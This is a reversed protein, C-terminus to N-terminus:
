NMQIVDRHRVPSVFHVSGDSYVVAGNSITARVHGVGRDDAILLDARLGLAIEGRDELGLARAPNRSVLRAAGPLGEPDTQALVLVAPLM